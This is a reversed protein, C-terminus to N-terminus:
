MPSRASYVGVHGSNGDHPRCPSWPDVTTAARRTCSSGASTMPSAAPSGRRPSASSSLGTSSGSASPGTSGPPPSGRGRPTSRCSRPRASTAACHWCRNARRPTGSGVTGDGGATAIRSGSRNLALFNVAGSHGALTTMAEGTRVSWVTVVQSEAEQHAATVITDGGSGPVAYWAETEISTLETGTRWQWVIVRGAGPYYPGLAEVTGVLREGDPMFALSGVLLGPVPIVEITRGSREVLTISGGDADGGAIALVQGDPSWEAYNAFAGVRATFLKDGTAVDWVPVVGEGSIRGQDNLTAVMSGDSTPAIHSVDDAAVMAVGPIASAPPPPSARGGLTRVPALTRADWVEVTGRAGTTFLYRGDNSFRAANYHFAVSALNGAEAGGDLVVNWITASSRSREATVLRTGDPSFSIDTVGKRTDQASLTVLERPGGELLSWIRATGDASSTALRASDPSWAVASVLAGHGPIVMRQTGSVADFVRASGDYASTAIARGDPSWAVGTVGWSGPTHGTLRLATEGTELDIVRTAADGSM